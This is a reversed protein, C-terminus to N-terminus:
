EAIVKWDKDKGCPFFDYLKSGDRILAIKWHRIGNKNDVKHTLIGEWWEQGAPKGNTTMNYGVSLKMGVQLADAKDSILMLRTTVGKEAEPSSLTTCLVTWEVKSMTHQVTKKDPPKAAPAMLKTTNFKVMLEDNITPESLRCRDSRLLGKQAKFSREVAAETVTAETM